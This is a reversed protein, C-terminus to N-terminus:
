SSIHAAIKKVLRPKPLFGTVRVPIDQGKFLMTTPIGMVGYQNALNPNKDADVKVVKLRGAYESAIDKLVPELMKCPGCWVATFELLVPLESQLVEAEFSDENVYMLESM